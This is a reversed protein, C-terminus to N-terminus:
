SRGSTYVAYPAEILPKIVALIDEALRMVRKRRSLLEQAGPDESLAAELHAEFEAISPDLRREQCAKEFSQLFGQRYNKKLAQETGGLLIRAEAGTTSTIAEGPGGVGEIYENASHLILEHLRGIQRDYFEGYEWAEVGFRTGMEILINPVLLSLYRRQLIASSSWKAKSFHEGVIELNRKMEDFVPGYVERVLEVAFERQWGRNQSERTIYEYITMSLWATFGSGGLFAFLTRLASLFMGQEPRLTELPVTALSAGFFVVAVVMGIYKPHVSPRQDQSNGEGM